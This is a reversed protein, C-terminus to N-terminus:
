LRILPPGALCKQRKKKTRMKRQLFKSVWEGKTQIFLWISNHLASNGLRGSRRARRWAAVRHRDSRRNVSHRHDRRAQSSVHRSRGAAARTALLEIVARRKSSLQTEMEPPFTPPAESDSTAEPAADGAPRLDVPRRWMRPTLVALQTQQTRHNVTALWLVSPRGQRSGSMDCSSVCCAAFPM